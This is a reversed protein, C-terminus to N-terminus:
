RKGPLYKHVLANLDPVLRLGLVCPWFLVTIVVSRLIIVTFSNVPGYVFLDLQLPMWYVLAGVAVAIAAVMAMRSEFPQLGYRQYLYGVKVAIVVAFSALTSWAAGEIGWLRIFFWDFVVTCALVLASSFGDFRFGKSMTIIGGNIGVALNLLNAGSIIIVVRYAVSYGAPLFTFLDALSLCVVLFLFAGIAFSTSASRTYVLQILSLDKRKWAQALIPLAPQSLARAPASIVSGFFYAVSYYAVHKLALTGLLAGIMIQDISGLVVSAMSTAMTYSGFVAMSRLLRKRSRVWQPRWTLDGTAQLVFFMAATCVLFLSTFLVMFSGFSLGFKWHLVILLTQLLRLVVERLLTPLVSRGLSRSYARLILFFVESLILPLAFLGYAGYLNNGDAFVATFMGHFLGVCAMALLSGGFGIALALTLLGGHRRSPDRFYPFYRVITNDLGFQAFAGAITAISVLLRTLGFQDDPLIRPYLIAINLFGLFLGTYTLVTNQITQKALTGM